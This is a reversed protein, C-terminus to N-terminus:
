GGDRAPPLLLGMVEIHATRPFMDYLRVPRALHYGAQLLRGCDRAFTAPNCSIYALALPRSRELEALLRPPLGGRPPDVLVVDSSRIFDGLGRAADWSIEGVSPIDRRNHRFDGVAEPLMEFGLVEEYNQALSVAFLGVGTFLDLLRTAGPLIARLDAVVLEAAAVNMQFFSGPSVRFCHGGVEMELARGEVTREDGYEALALLPEEGDKGPINGARLTLRRPSQALKRVSWGSLERRIVPRAIPCDDVDVIRRTKKQHYGLCGDGGHLTVTNRYELPALEKFKESFGDTPIETRLIRRLAESVIKEKCSLEEGYPIHHFDCGGCRPFYPCASSIRFPSPEVLELLKAWRVGKGRGTVEVEILEGPAVARCFVVGERDRILGYGGAVVKEVRGTIKV